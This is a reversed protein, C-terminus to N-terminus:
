DSAQVAFVGFVAIGATICFASVAPIDITAGVSFALLDTVSTLMVSGGVDGLAAALRESPLAAEPTRDFADVLIFMDDIGVGLVIFISMLTLVTFPVGAWSTLGFALLLSLLVTVVISLGLLLRSRVADCRGLAVSVYGVM